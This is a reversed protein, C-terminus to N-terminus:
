TSPGARSGSGACATTSAGPCWGTSPSSSARARAASCLTEGARARERLRNRRPRRVRRVVGVPAGDDARRAPDRRRAHRGPRHVDVRAALPAGRPQHGGDRDPLRRDLRELLVVQSGRDGVRRRRAGREHRAADPGLGPHAARDHQVRQAPRGRAAPAALAGEAGRHRRPRPDGLQGLRARRQRVRAARDALQRPDRADARPAGTGDGTRRARAAPPRGVPRAGQGAGAAAGTRAALGDMGLEHWIAELPWIEERVFESMWDLQEQFDPDTSFDWSM